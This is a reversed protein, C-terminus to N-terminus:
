GFRFHLSTKRFFIWEFIAKGIYGGGHVTRRANSLFDPKKSFFDSITVNSDSSRVFSLQSNCIMQFTFLTLLAANRNLLHAFDFSFSMFIPIWNSYKRCKYRNSLPWVRESAFAASVLFSSLFFSKNLFFVIRRHVFCFRQTITSLMKYDLRKTRISFIFHLNWVVKNQNFRKLTPIMLSISVKRKLQSVENEISEKQVFYDSTRRSGGLHMSVSSQFQFNMSNWHLLFLENSIFNVCLLWCRCQCYSIPQLCEWAMSSLWFLFCKGNGISQEDDLDICLSQSNSLFFSTTANFFM